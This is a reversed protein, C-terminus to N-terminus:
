LIGNGAEFINLCRLDTTEQQPHQILWVLENLVYPLSDIGRYLLMTNEHKFVLQSCLHQLSRRSSQNHTYWQVGHEPGEQPDPRCPSPPSKM